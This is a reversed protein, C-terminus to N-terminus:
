SCGARTTGTTALSKAAKDLTPMYVLPLMEGLNRTLLAHFLTENADQLECLFV